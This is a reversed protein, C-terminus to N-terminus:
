QDGNACVFFQRMEQATHATAPTNKENSKCMCSAAAIEHEACINECLLLEM